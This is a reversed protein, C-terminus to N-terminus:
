IRLHEKVISMDYACYYRQVLRGVLSDFFGKISFIRLFRGCCSLFDGFINDPVGLLLHKEIYGDWKEFLLKQFPVKEVTEVARTVPPQLAHIFSQSYSETRIHFFGSFAASDWGDLAGL